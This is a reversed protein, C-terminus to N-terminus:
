KNNPIYDIILIVRDQDTKNIAAHQEHDDFTFGVGNTWPIVQTRTLLACNNNDPCDIGLHYRHVNRNGESDDGCHPHIVTGARLRSFGAARHLPFYHNILKSTIPFHKLNDHADPEPWLWLPIVDWAGHYLDTQPWTTWSNNGAIYENYELLISNYHLAFNNM